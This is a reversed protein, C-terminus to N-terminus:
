KWYGIDADNTNGTIEISASAKSTDAISISRRGAQPAKQIGASHIGSCTRGPAQKPRHYAGNRGFGGSAVPWYSVQRSATTDAFNVNEPVMSKAPSMVRCAVM